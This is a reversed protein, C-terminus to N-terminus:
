EAVFVLEKTKTKSLAYTKSTEFSRVRKKSRKLMAVLDSPAPVGDKRYSLVVISRDRKTIAKELAILIREPDMFPDRADRIFPLHKRKADIRAPWADYDALGELFHYYGLYDTGQGAANMYPPDLYLLDAEAVCTLADGVRVKCPRGSDFVADNAERLASFFHTELPTDWTAKNGFSREVDRTRLSLNKRHFLNFPRKKLCAQFLAFSALGREFPHHLRAINQAVLDIQANEEDLFYIGGFTRAVFDDYRTRPTKTFLARAAVEDLKMSRNEILGTLMAGNSLLADNALTTKGISKLLYSVAGTGAFLDVASDFSLQRFVKELFPIMRAKSGQFRTTPFRHGDPLGLVTQQSSVRSKPAM